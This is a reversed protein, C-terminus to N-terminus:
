HPQTQAAVSQGTDLVERVARLLMPPTFPKQLLAVGPAISRRLPVSEQTYGSMFLVRMGPRQGALREALEAGGLYPMVVDTLLLHIPGDHKESIVVAEGSSGAELVRYGQRLLIQKAVGRLATEDEVLLVTETGSLSQVQVPPPARSAHEDTRPFYLTFDSGQGPASSVWITGGSQQVIGLVTALGLGTGKGLEKTTFFPEFIRAQTAEDMGAGSDRVRLLVHPGPKVGLHRSAFEADLVVNRTEIFLAGGEPMADRANAALNLLVQEINGPDVKVQGLGVGLQTTLEIHEGVLRTLLRETTAIVENLNVVKPEIVQQRSFALLQRTLEGARGAADMIERLSEGLPDGPALGASGLGAYSLIISLLNNFDHAVGSALRGIAELKQSQRLQAETRALDAAARRAETIDLSLICIGEPVPLCRVEFWGPKGDTVEFETETRTHVRELMTKQLMAFVPSNKLQPYVELMTRGLLQERTARNQALASRNVFLYRWDFGVVQCGELLSELVDEAVRTTTM